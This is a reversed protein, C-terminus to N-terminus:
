RGLKPLVVDLLNKFLIVGELRNNDDVVPIALIGYKAFDDAIRNKKEEINVAVVRTDMLESLTKEPAAVILERLKLEAAM